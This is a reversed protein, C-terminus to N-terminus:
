ECASTGEHPANVGVAKGIADRVEGDGQSADVRELVTLDRGVLLMAPYETSIAGSYLADPDAVVPTHIGESALDFADSWDTAHGATVTQGVNPGEALMTLYVFDDGFDQGASKAYCALEKCPVCWLTSVDILTVRGEFQWMCVDDGNQDTLRFDPITDGVEFGSGKLGPEPEGVVPWMNTVESFDGCSGLNPTKLEALSCGSVAVWVVIWRM